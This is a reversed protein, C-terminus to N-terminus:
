DAIVIEPEAGMLRASGWAGREPPLRGFDITLAAFLMNVDRENESLPMYLRNAILDFAKATVYRSRAFVPKQEACSRQYYGSISKALDADFLKGVYQGTYDRGFASVLATGVLRYRFGGDTLVEILQVNPLLTPIEIPDIDRRAPMLRGGRKAQWYALATGLIPDARFNYIVLEGRSRFLM